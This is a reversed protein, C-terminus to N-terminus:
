AQARLPKRAAPVVQPRINQNLRFLNGPDYQHKIAALRAYNGRYRAAIREDGEEMLFNVCAGGASHAHLASWYARVWETHRPMRTPDPDLAFVVQCFNGDRYSWATEHNSVRHTAGSTSFIHAGSFVNPVGPGFREHVEILEDSLDADRLVFQQVRQPRAHRNRVGRELSRDAEDPRCQVVSRM